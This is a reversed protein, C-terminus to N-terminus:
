FQLLQSCQSIKKILVLLTPLSVRFRPWFKQYCGVYFSVFSILNKSKAQMGEGKNAHEDLRNSLIGESTNYDIIKPNWCLGFLGCRVKHVACSSSKQDREQFVTMTPIALGCDTLWGWLEGKYTIKIFLIPLYSHEWSFGFPEDKEKRRNSENTSDM